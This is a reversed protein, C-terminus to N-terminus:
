YVVLTMNKRTNIAVAAPVLIRQPALVPVNASALPAVGELVWYDEEQDLIRSLQYLKDLKRWAVATCTGQTLSLFTGTWGLCKAAGTKVFLLQHCLQMHIMGM